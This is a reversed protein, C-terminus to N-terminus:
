GTEGEYAYKGHIIHPASADAGCAEGGAAIKLTDFATSYAREVASRSIGLQTAVQDFSDKAMGRLVLVFRCLPDLRARIQKSNEILVLFDRKSLPVHTSTVPEVKEYKSALEAIAAHQEQLARDITARAAWHILWDHFAPTQREAITCADVIYADRSKKDEILLNALWSLLNHYDGFAQRIDDETVDNQRGRLEELIATLNMSETGKGTISRDCYSRCVNTQCLAFQAPMGQEGLLRPEM